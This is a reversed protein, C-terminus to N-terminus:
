VGSLGDVSMRMLRGVRSINKDANTVSEIWNTDTSSFSAIRM